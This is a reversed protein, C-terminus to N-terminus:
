APLPSKVADVDAGTVSWTLPPEPHPHPEVSATSRGVPPVIAAADRAPSRAGTVSAAKAALLAVGAGAGGSSIVTAAVGAVTSSPWLTVRVETTNLSPSSGKGLPVTAKTSPVLTSPEAGVTWTGLVV